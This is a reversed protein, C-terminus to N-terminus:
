RNLTGCSQDFTFLYLNISQAEYAVFRTSCISLNLFRVILASIHLTITQTSLGIALNLLVQAVAEDEEAALLADLLM